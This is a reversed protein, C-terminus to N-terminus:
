SNEIIGAFCKYISQRQIIISNIRDDDLRLRDVFAKSSNNLIALQVDEHNAKLIQDKYKQIFSSFLVLTESIVVDSVESIALAARRAKKGVELISFNNGM